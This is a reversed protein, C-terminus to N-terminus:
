MNLPTHAKECGFKEDEVREQNEMIYKRVGSWFAGPMLRNLQEATIMETKPRQGLKNIDYGTKIVLFKGIGPRLAKQPCGYLCNMCLFCRKGFVPNGGDMTINASPCHEACWGCGNCDHSVVIRKGLFHAGYKEVSGLCAMCRDFIGPKTRRRVGKLIDDVVASVFTPMLDLLMKDVPAKTAIAINSPMVAMKEYIVVHRKKELQRIVKHRCATNPSVEGGGSVTIVAAPMTAPKMDYQLWQYVPEPARFAYVPYLLLLLDYAENLEGKRTPLVQTQVQFGKSHFQEAFAQAVLKTSGTGTYYVIRVSKM